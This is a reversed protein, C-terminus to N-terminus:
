VHARGIEKSLRSEEEALIQRLREVGPRHLPHAPLARPPRANVDAVAEFRADGLMVEKLAKARAVAVETGGIESDISRPSTICDNTDSLIEPISSFPLLSQTTPMHQAPAEGAHKPWSLPYTAGTLSM